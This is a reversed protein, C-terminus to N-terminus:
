KFNAHALRFPIPSQQPAVQSPYTPRRFITKLPVAKQPAKKQNYKLLEHRLFVKHQRM